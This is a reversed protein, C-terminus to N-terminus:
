STGSESHQLLGANGRHPREGAGSQEQGAAEALLLLPNRLSCCTVYPYVLGQHPSPVSHDEAELLLGASRWAGVGVHSLQEGPAQHSCPVSFGSAQYPTAQDPGLAGTHAKSKM